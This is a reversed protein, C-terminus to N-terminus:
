LPPEDAEVFLMLLLAFSKGVDAVGMGSHMRARLAGELQKASMTEPLLSSLLLACQAPM